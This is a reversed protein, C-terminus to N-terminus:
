WGGSRPHSTLGQADVRIRGDQETIIGFNGLWAPPDAQQGLALIVRDTEVFVTEQPTKFSVERVSGVGKCELPIHEFLFEAGEERALTIENPSARLCEEMGRYAVIVGAGLRLAARACDM